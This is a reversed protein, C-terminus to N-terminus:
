TVSCMLPWTRARSFASPVVTASSALSRLRISKFHGLQGRSDRSSVMRFALSRGRLRANKQVSPWPAQVIELHHCGRMRQVDCREYTRAAYQFSAISPVGAQRPCPTWVECLRTASEPFSLTREFPTSARPAARQVCVSLCVPLSGPRNLPDKM